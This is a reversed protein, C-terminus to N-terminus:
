TVVLKTQKAQFSNLMYGAEARQWMMAERLLWDSFGLVDAENAAIQERAQSHVRCWRRLAALFLVAVAFQLV